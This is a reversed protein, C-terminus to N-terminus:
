DSIMPYIPSRMQKSCSVTVSMVDDESFIREPMGPSKAIHEPYFVGMACDMGNLGDVKQNYFNYLEEQETASSFRVLTVGYSTGLITAASRAYKNSNEAKLKYYAATTTECYLKKGSFKGPARRYCVNVRDVYIPKTHIESTLQAIADNGNSTAREFAAMTNHSITRLILLPIVIVGVIGIGVLVPLGYNSLRKKASSKHIRKHTRMVM